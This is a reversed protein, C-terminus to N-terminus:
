QQHVPHALVGSAVVVDAALHRGGADVDVGEVKPPEAGRAARPGVHLAPRDEVVVELRPQAVHTRHAM